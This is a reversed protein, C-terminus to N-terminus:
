PQDKVRGFVQGQMTLTAVKGGADRAVELPTSESWEFFVPTKDASLGIFARTVWASNASWKITARAATGDATVELVNGKPDKYRGALADRLDAAPPQPFEPGAPKEGLLLSQVRDALQKVPADDRNALVFICGDDDPLRRIECVFGRVAGGHSQVSKGRSDKKVFWGLAYDSLGPTFFAAKSEDNLIAKDRLARDWRWLDWVSTVVGGMGRYQFGYEGYPHDLASRPKGMTSRGVAVDVGEPAKDGTFRTLTMGSPTFLAETCYATYSKGSARAVIESLLSYGQNWYEFHAGPAHRPGSALFSPLVAALDNGGGRSNTGPIGSTHQLLHRVTIAKCSEPVGPLHKGIPDDLSLKGDQALRVVAAATFQKTASAIEFLTAPTNPSKGELDANGVGAAAVVKGGRAALVVGSFGVSESKQVCNVIRDGVDGERIITRENPPPEHPYAATSLSVLMLGLVIAFANMDSRYGFRAFQSLVLNKRTDV